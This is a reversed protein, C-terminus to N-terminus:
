MHYSHIKKYTYKTRKERLNRVMQNRLNWEILNIKNWHIRHWSVPPRSRLTIEAFINYKIECSDIDAIEKTM